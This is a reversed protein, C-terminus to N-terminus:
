TTAEQYRVVYRALTDIELHLKDGIAWSEGITTNELTHPIINLTFDTGEIYNTTLSVGDLAVSGKTAIFPALAIPARVVFSISDGIAERGIVEALGDIHGSVIHGGLEDGMKLARELNIRTGAEWEALTTKSLTEGSASVWFSDATKETVTLCVGHCAISAGLAVDAMTYGCAIEYRTDGAAVISRVTGIDSIIGTFM